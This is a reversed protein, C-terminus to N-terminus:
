ASRGVGTRPGPARGVAAPHRLRGRLGRRLRRARLGVARRPSGSETDRLSRDAARDGPLRDAPRPAVLRNGHHGRVTANDPGSGDTSVSALTQGDPSFSLSGVMATHGTLRAGSRPRLPDSVDWLAVTGDSDGTALTAADPSLAVTHVNHRSQMHLDARAVPRAPDAVDWLRVRSDSGAAALSHGDPSFLVRQPSRFVHVSPSTVTAVHRPRTSGSLTWLQLRDTLPAQTVVLEGTPSAAVPADPLSDLTTSRRLDRGEFVSGGKDTMAFLRGGTTFLLVLVEGRDAAASAVALTEPRRADSVDYLRVWGDAGGLAMLGGDPSFAVATVPRGAPALSVPRTGRAPDFLRAGHEAVALLGRSSYAAAYVPGRGHIVRPM